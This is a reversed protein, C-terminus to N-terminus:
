AARARRVNACVAIVAVMDGRVRVSLEFTGAGALAGVGVARWGGEGRTVVVDRPSAAMGVGLWKLVAEKAAWGITLATADLTAAATLEEPSFWDAVFAASRPAIAEVDIGVPESSAIAWAEGNRHSISVYVGDPGTVVPAGSPLREIGFTTSGLLAAVARRAAVQGALRDAQRRATGRATMARFDGKSLEGAAGENGVAVSAWGGPPVPIRDGPPLPGRDILRFGRVMLVRGQSGDVDIDYRDTGDAAHRLCVTVNLTDGDVVPAAREVVDIASPLGMVGHVAMRHLGAAQFAAELVLPDTLLGGAIPAHQVKAEAFLGQLAVSEVNRLVQFAPGHFFRRYIERSPIVEDPLFMAPLAPLMPMEEVQVRAEFHSTALVRGTKAQRSSQLTCYVTGDGVPTARVEVEVPEDRHLKLPANFKVDEDGVYRGHPCALLAAAAMMELGIVGPLVWVGDIAHDVM